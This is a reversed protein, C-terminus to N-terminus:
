RQRGRGDQVCRQMQLVKDAVCCISSATMGCTDLTASLSPEAGGLGAVEFV